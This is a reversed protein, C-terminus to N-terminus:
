KTSDPLISVPVRPSADESRLPMGAYSDVIHVRAQTRLEALLERYAQQQSELLLIQMIEDRAADFSVPRAVKRRGVVRVVHFGLGSEIPGRVERNKMSFVVAELAPNMAGKGLFGIDGGKSASGDLSHKKALTNFGVGQKLQELIADAEDITDVLIHQVHVEQVYLDRHTKYYARMEENTVRVRSHMERQLFEDALLQREMQYLQEAIRPDRDMGERRAKQHLLETEVWRQLIDHIEAGTIIERIESPIMRQLDSERLEAKNVQALAMRSQSAAIEKEQRTESDGCSAVLLVMVLAGRSGAIRRWM